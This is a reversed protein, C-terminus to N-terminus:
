CDPAHHFENCSCCGLYILWFGLFGYDRICRPGENFPVAPGDERNSHGHREDVKVEGFVGDAALDAGVLCAGRINKACKLQANLGM